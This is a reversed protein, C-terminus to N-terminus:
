PPWRMPIRRLREARNLVLLSTAREDEDAEEVGIGRLAETLVQEM